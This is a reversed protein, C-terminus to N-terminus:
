NRLTNYQTVLTGGDEVYKILSAHGSKLSSRTNYARIGVVIADFGSLDGNKLQEDSLLTVKYGAQRLSEPVQDGSGMVYGISDGNRKLDLRVFKIKAVPFVRQPPIHPYDIVTLGSSIAKVM